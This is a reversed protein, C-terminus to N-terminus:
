NQPFSYVFNENQSTYLDIDDSIHPVSNGIFNTAFSRKSAIELLILLM